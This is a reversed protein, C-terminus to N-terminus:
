TSDLNVFTKFRFAIFWFKPTTSLSTFNFSRSYKHCQYLIIQGYTQKKHQKVAHLIMNKEKWIHLIYTHELTVKSM